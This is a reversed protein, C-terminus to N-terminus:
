NSHAAQKDRCGGGGHGRLCVARKARPRTSSFIVDSTAEMDKISQSPKRRPSIFVADELGADIVAVRGMTGGLVATVSGLKELYNILQLACGSDIIEPGHVVAGIRFCLDM